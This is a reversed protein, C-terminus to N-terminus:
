GCEELRAVGSQCAAVVLEQIFPKEAHFSPTAILHRDEAVIKRVDAATLFEFLCLLLWGCFNLSPENSQCFILAAEERM